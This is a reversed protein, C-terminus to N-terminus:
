KIIAVAIGVIVGAAGVVYGLMQNKGYGESAWTKVETIQASLAEFLRETESRPMLNRERDNMAGRWENANLRWKEANVESAAVAKDNSIQQAQVAEKQALMSAQIVEKLSAISDKIGDLKADNTNRQEALLRDFHERLDISM